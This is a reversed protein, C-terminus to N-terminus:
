SIIANILSSNHVKKFALVQATPITTIPNDEVIIDLTNIKDNNPKYYSPAIGLGIDMAVLGAVIEFSTVVQVTNNQKFVGFKKLIKDLNSVGHHLKNDIEIFKANKLQIPKIFKHKALPHNKNIWVQLHGKLLEFYELNENKEGISTVGILVEDKLIAEDVEYPSQYEFIKLDVDGLKLSIQELIELVRYKPILQYIGIKLVKKRHEIKKVGEIASKWHLLIKSAESYFFAGANTLVVKKHKERQQKDLLETNLEGELLQIQKTIAPQSINLQKAANRFSLQKAVEVFYILQQIEM